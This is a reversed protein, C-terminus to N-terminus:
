ISFHKHMLSKSANDIRSISIGLATRAILVITLIITPTAVSIVFYAVIFTTVPIVAVITGLM